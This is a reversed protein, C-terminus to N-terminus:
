IPLNGPISLTTWTNSVTNLINMDNYLDGKNSTLNTVNFEGFIFIIGSNDIVGKVASRPPVGYLYIRSNDLSLVAASRSTYVPLSKENILTWTLKNNEFSTSLDLSFLEFTFASVNIAGSFILLRNDIIVITDEKLRTM